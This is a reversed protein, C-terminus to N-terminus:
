PKAQRLESCAQQYLTESLAGVQLAHSLAALKISLSLSSPKSSASAAAPAPAPSADQAKESRKNAFIRDWGSAYQKTYGWGDTTPKFAIDRSEFSSKDSDDVASAAAASTAPPSAAPVVAASPAASSPKPAPAITSPAAPSPAPAAAPATDPPAYAATSAHLSSRFTTYPTRIRATHFGSSSVARYTAFRKVRLVSTSM